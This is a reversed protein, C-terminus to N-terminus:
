GNRPTRKKEAEQLRKRVELALERAMRALEDRQRDTTALERSM